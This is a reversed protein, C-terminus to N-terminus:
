PFESMVQSRSADLDATRGPVHLSRSQTNFRSTRCESKVVCPSLAGQMGMRGCLLNRGGVGGGGGLGGGLRGVGPGLVRLRRSATGSARPHSLPDPAFIIPIKLRSYEPTLGNRRPDELSNSSFSFSFGARSRGAGLGAFPLGMELGLGSGQVAVLKGPRSGYALSGGRLGRFQVQPAGLSLMCCGRGSNLRDDEEGDNPGDGDETSKKTM